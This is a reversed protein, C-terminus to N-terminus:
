IEQCTIEGKTEEIEEWDKVFEINERVIQTQGKVKFGSKDFELLKNVYMNTVQKCLQEESLTKLYEKTEENADDDSTEIILQTIIRM